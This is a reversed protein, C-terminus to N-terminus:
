IYGLAALYATRKNHNLLTCHLVLQIYTHAYTNINWKHMCSWSLERSGASGGKSSIIDVAGYRWREFLLSRSIGRCLFVSWDNLSKRRLRLGWSDVFSSQFYVTCVFGVGNIGVWMVSNPGLAKHQVILLCYLFTKNITETTESFFSFSDVPVSFYQFLSSFGWVYLNSDYVFWVPRVFPSYCEM